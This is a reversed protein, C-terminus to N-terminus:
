VLSPTNKADSKYHFAVPKLALIAKSADDMPKIDHKFRRSSAVTGLKGTSDVGVATVTAPDIIAGYINGIFCSNDVNAGMVNEGIVIVNNATTVNGGAGEGLGINNSGTTNALLAGIGIATNGGGTSNSVLAFEGNATNANGTTNSFLAEFGVATNDNANNRVLADHGVATNAVATTNNRLASVGVATNSAGPGIPLFPASVWPQIETAPPTTM